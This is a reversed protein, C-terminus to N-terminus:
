SLASLALLHDRGPERRITEGELVARKLDRLVFIGAPFISSLRSLGALRHPRVSQRVVSARHRSMADARFVLKVDVRRERYCRRAAGVLSCDAPEIEVATAGLKHARRACSPRSRIAGTDFSNYEFSRYRRQGLIKRFVLEVACWSPWCKPERISVVAGMGVALPVPGDQSPELLLHRHHARM